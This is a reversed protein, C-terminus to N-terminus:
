VEGCWNKKKTKKKNAKDPASGEEVTLSKLYCFGSTRVIVPHSRKKFYCILYFLPIQFLGEKKRKKTQL